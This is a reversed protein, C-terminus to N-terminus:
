NSIPSRLKSNNSIFEILVIYRWANGDVIATCKRTTNLIMSGFYLLIRGVDPVWIPVGVWSEYTCSNTRYVSGVLQKCYEDCIRRKYCTCYSANQLKNNSARACLELMAGFCGLDLFAILSCLHTASKM